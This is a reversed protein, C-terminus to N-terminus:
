EGEYYDEEDADMFEFASMEGDFEKIIEYVTEANNEKFRRMWFSYAWPSYSVYEYDRFESILANMENSELTKYITDSLVGLSETRENLDALLAKQEGIEEYSLLLIKITNEFGSTKYANGIKLLSYAFAKNRDFHYRINEPSRDMTKWLYHLYYDYNGTYGAYSLVDQISGDTEFKSTSNRNPNALLSLRYLFQYDTSGSSHEESVLNDYLIIPLTDSTIIKTSFALASLVEALSQDEGQANTERSVNMEFMRDRLSKNEQKLTQNEKLLKEDSDQCGIILLIAFLYLLHKM